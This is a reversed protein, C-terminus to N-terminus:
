KRYLKLPSKRGPSQSSTIKELKLDPTGSPLVLPPTYKKLKKSGEVFKGGEIAIQETSSVSLFPAKVNLKDQYAAMRHRVESRLKEIETKEVHFTDKEIEQLHKSIGSRYCFIVYIGFLFILIASVLQFVAYYHLLPDEVFHKKHLVKISLILSVGYDIYLFILFLFPVCGISSSAEAQKGSIKYFLYLVATTIISCLVAFGITNFTMLVLISFASPAFFEIDREIFIYIGWVTSTLNTIFILLDEWTWECCCKFIARPNHTEGEQDLHPISIPFGMQGENGNFPEDKLRIQSLEIEDQFNKHETM